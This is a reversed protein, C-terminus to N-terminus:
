SRRGPRRLLQRVGGGLSRLSIRARLRERRTRPADLSGRLEGVALWVRDADAEAPAGPAFVARDVVAALVRSPLTGVVAAVETRTAAIPVQLGHDLVLDAFEDWGGRIRGLATPATRRLYRRRAKAAVVLLFPSLAIAVALLSIGAIRLAQLLVELTQDPAVPDEATTDPDTQDERPDPRDAPPPVISEPRSVPTPDEPEEEPIPRTEPVPNIAVWGYQATDVEIWASIDSGLVEVAGSETTQPVFGMVVRAPFGLQDAMLAAAVAYQEADGIMLPTSFLEGIRDLSHGSRSAPEDEGIGHSIYGEARMGDIAAVLQGGAGDVGTTYRELASTLDDPVEAIRPVVASGPVADILDGSSPQQPIVADLRYVDGAHLGALDAATGSTENFAFGDELSAADDGRFDIQELLGVTPVWVGSYGDVSITLQVRRGSVSSRDIASPLRVFTGSASDVTASGVSYVVGDYTDLTAIRLLAGEPLGEVTLMTRDAEGERLYSRFSSLPSAYDRPDFPQPVANRLVDREGTPAAAIAASAAGAGAVAVILLAGLVTRLQGRGRRERTGTARAFRRSAARRRRWRWSAVWVLCAVLMGLGLPIPWFAESPGFVIGTLFVVVPPIVALEGRSSRFAISGAVVTGGLLLVLAPVLLAQYDGVPLTITLLQKWGLAVSSFLDVLGDVSPLLGAVAEGPVALPVGVLAFAAVTVLFVIWGPWRFAAGALAILTGLAIAIAALVVFSDSRYIPWLMVAAIGMAIWLQLVDVLVGLSVSRKM